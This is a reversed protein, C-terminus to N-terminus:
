AEGSASWQPNAVLCCEHIEDAIDPPLLAWADFFAKENQLKGKEFTFIMNGNADQVDCYTM